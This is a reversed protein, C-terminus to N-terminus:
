LMILNTNPLFSLDADTIVGTIQSTSCLAFTSVNGVKEGNCLFYAHKAHELMLRRMKVGVESQGTIVGQHDVAKSSFFLYDVHISKLAEETWAGSTTLNRKDLMGGMFYVAIGNECLKVATKFCNTFVTIGMDGPIYDAMYMASSSSDLMVTANAPIMSAAMRAISRKSEKAQNERFALPIERPKESLLLINGYQMRLLGDEEMAHLDRRITAPSAYVAACLEKVNSCKESQLLQLIENQRNTRNM